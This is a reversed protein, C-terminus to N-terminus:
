LRKLNLIIHDSSDAPIILKQIYQFGYRHTRMWLKVQIQQHAWTSAAPSMHAIHWSFICAGIASRQLCMKQSSQTDSHYTGSTKDQGCDYITARLCSFYWGPGRSQCCHHACFSDKSYLITMNLLRRFAHQQTKVSTQVVRLEHM